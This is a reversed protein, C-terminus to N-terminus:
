CKTHHYVTLDWCWSQYAITDKTDEDKFVPLNIKVHGGPEGHPYQGHHPHRSGGLRESMSSASSSTSAISRDSEFGHDSLLSLSWPPVVGCSKNDRAETGAESHHGADNRSDLSLSM